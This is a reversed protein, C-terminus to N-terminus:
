TIMGIHCGGARISKDPFDPAAWNRSGLAYGDGNSMSPWRLARAAALSCAPRTGGRANPFGATDVRSSSVSVTRALPCPSTRRLMSVLVLGNTFSVAGYWIKVAVSTVAIVRAPKASRAVIWDKSQPVIRSDRRSLGRM